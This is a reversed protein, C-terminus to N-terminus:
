PHGNRSFRGVAEAMEIISKAVNSPKRATVLPQGANIADIAAPYNNPITWFTEYDLSKQIEKSEIRDVRGVRNVVLKVKEASYGLERFLQLVKKTARLSSITAVTTLLIVDSMDLATMVRPEFIHPTDVVVFPYQGKLYQLVHQVQAPSIEDSAAPHPPEPLVSVGSEHPAMASELKDTDIMDGQECADIISYRPSLDLMSTVDGHQLNLDVLATKKATLQSFAIATNVALTTVGIGGTKSFVTILRSGGGKGSLQEKRKRARDVAQSLEHENVPKPLFEQAGARMAAIILEAAKSSSTVIITLEPFESKVREIRSLSSAFDSKPSLEVALIDPTQKRLADQWGESGLNSTRVEADPLRRFAEATDPESNLLLISLLDPM